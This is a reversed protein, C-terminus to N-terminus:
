KSIELFKVLFDAYDIETRAVELASNYRYITDTDVTEKSFVTFIEVPELFDIPVLKVEDRVGMDEVINLVATSLPAYIGDIRGLLLKEVNREMLRKGAILDYTIQDSQLQEPVRGGVLFGLRQGYLDSISSIRELPHDMKFAITEPIILYPDPYHFVKTREATKGLFIMADIEGESLQNMLRTPATVETDWVFPVNFHPAIHKEFYSIAAGHPLGEEVGTVHPSIDFYGIRLPEQAMATPVALTLLVAAITSSLCHMEPEDKGRNLIHLESACQDM